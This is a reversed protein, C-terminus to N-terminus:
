PLIHTLVGQFAMSIALKSLEQIKSYVMIHASIASYQSYQHSNIGVDLSTYFLLTNRDDLLLMHM